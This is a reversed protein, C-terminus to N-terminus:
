WVQHADLTNKILDFNRTIPIAAEKCKEVWQNVLDKRYRATFPGIYCVSAAAVLTDGVIGQLKFDLENVSEAWRVQSYPNYM